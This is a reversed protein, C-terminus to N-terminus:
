LRRPWSNRSPVPVVRSPVPEFTKFRREPSVEHIVGQHNFFRADEAALFASDVEQANRGTLHIRRERYWEGALQGDAAYFRTVAPAWTVCGILRPLDLRLPRLCSLWGTGGCYIRIPLILFFRVLAALVGVDAILSSSWLRQSTNPKDPSSTVHQTKRSM